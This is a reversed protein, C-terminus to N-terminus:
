DSLSEWEDWVLQILPRIAETSFEFKCDAAAFLEPPPRSGGL